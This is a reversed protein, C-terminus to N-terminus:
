YVIKNYFDEKLIIYDMKCMYDLAKNFIIEDLEFVEIVKVLSDFLQIKTMSKIKILHNINAYVIEERSSVLENKRRQEWINAYDSTNFFVEILNNNFNTSSTLIMTDNQMKFLGSTILSSIIDNTFKYTYNTFFQSALVDKVLISNVDNFMELVMFQIPLMIIEKELYTINVEGFHPFWNLIRKDLYRSKYYKHYARLHKGLQTDKISKIIKSNVLGETQNIDWNNFSTTIVTMKNDIVDIKNIFKDMNTNFHLNDGFSSETDTIVKNIKYVLKDGFKSKLFNFVQKELCFYKEPITNYIKFDSIKELLRKILYQYYKNIFIDKDKINTVLQIFKIVEKEKSDRILSDINIQINEIFEETQVITSFKQNIIEKHTTQNIFIDVYILINIIKIIDNQKQNAVSRIILRIIETSMNNLLENKGDFKNEITLINIDNCINKLVYEIEDLSNNKIIDSLNEIIIIYIQQKIQNIDQFIFQFYDKIKYYYKIIDNLKQIRKINMPLPYEELEVIQKIFVNAFTTIIKNFIEFNDYNSLRKVFTIFTKIETILEINLSVIQEEIFLLIFSDSLILNILQKIGEKIIKDNSSKIINNLYELKSIFKKLFKNLHNLEFHEKKIFTRINNRHQILYNKIYIEINISFKELDIEEFWVVQNIYDSVIIKINSNLYNEFYNEIKSIIKKKDETELHNEIIKFIDYQSM